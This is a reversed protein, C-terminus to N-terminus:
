CDDDASCYFYNQMAKLFFPKRSNSVSLSQGNELIVYGGKGKVYREIQNLNITYSRHIRVFQPFFQILKETSSLTKCVLVKSDDDFVINTYNGQAELYAIRAIKKFIYGDLTPLVVKQGTKRAKMLFPTATTKRHRYNIDIMKM